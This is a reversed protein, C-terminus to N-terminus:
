RSLIYRDWILVIGCVRPIALCQFDLGLFHLFYILFISFFFIKEFIWLFQFCFYMKQYNRLIKWISSNCIEFFAM